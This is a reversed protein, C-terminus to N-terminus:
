HPDPEFFKKYFVKKNTLSYLEEFFDSSLKMFDNGLIQYHNPEKSTLKTLDFSNAIVYKRDCNRSEAWFKSIEEYSPKKRGSRFKAQYAGYKGDNFKILGDVGADNIEIDLNEKIDIPTDKGQWHKEIQYYAKNIELYAYVFDEFIDGKEKNSGEISEIQKELEFWNNFRNKLLRHYRM